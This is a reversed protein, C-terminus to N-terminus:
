GVIDGERPKAHEVLRNRSVANELGLARSIETRPSDEVGNGPSLITCMYPNRRIRMPKCTCPGDICIFLSPIAKM